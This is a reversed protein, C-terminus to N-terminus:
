TLNKLVVMERFRKDDAWLVQHLHPLVVNGFIAQQCLYERCRPQRPLQRLKPSIPNREEILATVQPVTLALSGTGNLPVEGLVFAPADEKRRRRVVLCVAIKRVLEPKEHRLVAVYADAGLAQKLVDAFGLEDPAMLRGHSRECCKFLAFIRVVPAFQHA